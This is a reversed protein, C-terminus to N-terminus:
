CNNQIDQNLKNRKEPNINKWDVSLKSPLFKNNTSLLRQVMPLLPLCKLLNYDCYLEKCRPLNPLITIQNRTIALKKCNDLNQPLFKLRNTQCFLEVYNSHDPLAEILNYDCNLYKCKPLEPLSKLKNLRCDLRICNPLPPLVRLNCNECEVEELLFCIERNSLHNIGSLNPVTTIRGDRIYKFFDRYETRQYKKNEDFYRISTRLRPNRRLRRSVYSSSSLLNGISKNGLKSFILGQVDSPLDLFQDFTGGLKTMSEVKKSARSWPGLSGQKELQESIEHIIDPPLIDLISEEM